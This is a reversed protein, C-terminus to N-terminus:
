GAQTAITRESSLGFKTGHKKYLGWFGMKKKRGTWLTLWSRSDEVQQRLVKLIGKLREFFNLHYVGPAVPTETAANTVEAHLQKVSKVLAALEARVAEIKEKIGVEELKVPAPRPAVEPRRIYPNYRERSFDVPQNPRLESQPAAPMSGFLSRLADGAGKGLVDKTVTKGVGTGLSRLSELISDNVPTKVPKKPQDTSQSFPDNM